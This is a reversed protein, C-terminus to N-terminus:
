HFGGSSNVSTGDPSEIKKPDEVKQIKIEGPKGFLMQLLPARKGLIQHLQKAAVDVNNAATRVRGMTQSFDQKFTPESVIDNAKTLAEKAERVIERLDGRLGQDDALKNVMQMSQRIEGTSTQIRGLITLMDQRLEKGQTSTSLDSITSQITEATKQAMQVTERLDKSLEPNDLIKAVKKNTNSLGGALTEVSDLARTGENFFRNASDAMRDARDATKGFRGATAGIADSSKRISETIAPMKDMTKNLKRAAAGLDRVASAAEESSIANAVTNIKEAINNVVLEVRVPDKGIVVVKPDIAELATSMDQPLTIEIYKAGVLGLTQITVAAKKPIPMKIGSIKLRTYVRPSKPDVDPPEIQGEPLKFSIQDVVGVRVGQVNVTANNSLGAVDHFRVWFIQPPDFPSFSKLWGWGYLLLILAGLSFFGVRLDYRDQNM